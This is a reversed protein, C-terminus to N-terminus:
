KDKLACYKTNIVVGAAAVLPSPFGTSHTNTFNPRVLNCQMVLQLENQM